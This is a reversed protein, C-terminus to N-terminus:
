GAACFGAWLPAAWSTGGVTITSGHYYVTAGYNPDAPGSVDPVLRMTGVPVSSGVQWPPRAFVASVGGGTSGGNSNWVTETTTGGSIQLSTGGVGTM